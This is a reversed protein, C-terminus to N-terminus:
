HVHAAVRNRVEELVQQQTYSGKQIVQEVYGSLKRRDDNTLDKATIVVIPISRWREDHRLHDVVEFGDMEPMMLDLLILDPSQDEIVRLADRGNVAEMVDCPEDRLLKLLMKRSTGDDEVVLISFPRKTIHKRIVAALRDRDIPKTMYDSAGLTFGRSKDDVMTLMVVPIEALLPDAKLRQLVSWGDLDPMMVDLIIVDLIIVDPRLSKARALGAHGGHASEIRFGERRMFREVVDRANPDDDILLVSPGELPVDTEREPESVAAQVTPVMQAPLQVIFTTGKGMESQVDIEGGM